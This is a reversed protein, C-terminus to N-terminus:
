NEDASFILKCAGIDGVMLDNGYGIDPYNM